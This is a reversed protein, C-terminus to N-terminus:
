LNSVPLRQKIMDFEIALLKVTKHLPHGIESLIHILSELDRVGEDMFDIQPIASYDFKDDCFCAMYCTGIVLIIAAIVALVGAVLLSVREVSVIPTPYLDSFCFYIFLL